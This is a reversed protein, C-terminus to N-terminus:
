ILELIRIYIAFAVLCLVSFTVFVVVIGTIMMFIDGIIGMNIKEIDEMIFFYFIVFFAIVGLSAIVHEM